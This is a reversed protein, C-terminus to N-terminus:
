IKQRLKDGEHDPDFAAGFLDRATVGAEKQLQLEDPLGAAAMARSYKDEIRATVDKIARLIRWSEAADTPATKLWVTMESLLRRGEELDPRVDAGLASAGLSASTARALELLTNALPTASQTRILEDYDPDVGLLLQEISVDLAKALRFLTPTEPLGKKGHEWASISSRSIGLRQALASSSLNADKKFRRLNDGFAAAAKQAPSKM